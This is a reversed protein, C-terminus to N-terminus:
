PQKVRTPDLAAADGPIESAATTESVDGVADRAPRTIFLLLLSLIVAILTITLAPSAKRAPPRTAPPSQMAAPFNGALHRTIPATDRRANHRKDLTHPRTSSRRPDRM